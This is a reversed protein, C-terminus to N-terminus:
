MKEVLYAMEPPIKSVRIGAKHEERIVRLTKTFLRKKLLKDEFAARKIQKEAYDPNALENWKRDVSHAPKLSNDGFRGKTRTKMSNLREIETLKKENYPVIMAQKLQNL